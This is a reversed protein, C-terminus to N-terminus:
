RGTDRSIRKAKVPAPLAHVREAIACQVVDLLRPLTPAGRRLPHSDGCDVAQVLPHGTKEGACHEQYDTFANSLKPASGYSASDLALAKDLQRVVDLGLERAVPLVTCGRASTVEIAKPNTPHRAVQLDTHNAFDRAIALTQTAWGQLWRALYPALALPAGLTQAITQGSVALGDAKGDEVFLPVDLRGTITQGTPNWRTLRVLLEDDSVKLISRDTLVRAAEAMYGRTLLAEGHQALLQETAAMLDALGNLGEGADFRRTVPPPDGRFELDVTSARPDSPVWKLTATLAEHALSRLSVEFLTNSTQGLNFRRYGEFAWRQPDLAALFEVLPRANDLAQRTRSRLKPDASAPDRDNEALAFFRGATKGKLQEECLALLNDPATPGSQMGDSETRRDALRLERLLQAAGAHEEPWLEGLKRLGNNLPGDPPATQDRLELQTVCVAQTPDPVYPSFRMSLLAMLGDAAIDGPSAIVVRTEEATAAGSAVPANYTATTQYPASLGKAQLLDALGEELVMEQLWKLEIM